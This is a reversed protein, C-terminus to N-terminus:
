QHLFILYSILDDIYWTVVIIIYPVDNLIFHINNM